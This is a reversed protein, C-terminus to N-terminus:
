TRTRPEERAGPVRGVPDDRYIGLETCRKPLAPPKATQRKPAVRPKKAPTAAATDTAPAAVGPVFAVVAASVLM